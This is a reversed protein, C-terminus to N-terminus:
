DREHWGLLPAANRLETGNDVTITRVRHRAQRIPSAARRNLAQTPRGFLKGIMTYGTM